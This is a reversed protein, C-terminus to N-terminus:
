SWSASYKCIFIKRFLECIAGLEKSAIKELNFNQSVAALSGFTITTSGLVLIAKDCPIKAVSENQVNPTANNRSAKIEKLKTSIKFDQNSFKRSKWWFIAICRADM